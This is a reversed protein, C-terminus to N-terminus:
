KGLPGNIPNFRTANSHFQGTSVDWFGVIYQNPIVMGPIKGAQMLDVLQNDLDTVNRGGMMKPIAMIVVAKSGKHVVGVAAAAYGSPGASHAANMKEVMSKINASNTYLATGEIGHGNPSGFAQGQVIKEAVDPSTQHAMLTFGKGEIQSLYGIVANVTKPDLSTAVQKVGPGAMPSAVPSVGAPKMPPPPTPGFAEQILWNKFTGM